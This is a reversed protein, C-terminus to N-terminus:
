RTEQGAGDLPVRRPLVARRAIRWGDDTRRVVDDYSVSGTTGDLMVGIGKSLVRCEDDDIPVVVVNTVHHGVPNRAGLTLGADRIADVGHLSGGGLATVDYVVDPTFLEALRDFSGEDMLHGHLSVLEHVAMRDEVTFAM